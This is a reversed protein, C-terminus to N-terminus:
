SCIRWARLVILPVTNNGFELAESKKTMESQEIETPHDLCMKAFGAKLNFSQYLNQVNEM